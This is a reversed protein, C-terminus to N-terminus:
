YGKVSLKEIFCRLNAPFLYIQHALIIFLCNLNCIKMVQSMQQFGWNEIILFDFEWLYWLNQFTLFIMVELFSAQDVEQYIGNSYPEHHYTLVFAKNSLLTQNYFSIIIQIHYYLAPIFWIVPFLHQQYRNIIQLLFGWHIKNNLISSFQWVVM